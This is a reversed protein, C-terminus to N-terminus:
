ATLGDGHALRPGFGLTFAASAEAASASAGATAAAPPVLFDHGEVFSSGAAARQRAAAEERVSGRGASGNRDVGTASKGSLDVSGHGIKLNM